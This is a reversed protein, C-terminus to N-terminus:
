LKGQGIAHLQNSCKVELMNISVHASLAPNLAPRVVSNVKVSAALSTASLWSRYPSAYFSSTDDGNFSAGFLFLSIVLSQLPLTLLCIWSVLSLILWDTVHLGVIRSLLRPVYKRKDRKKCGCMGRGVGAHLTSRMYGCKKEFPPPSPLPPSPLSSPVALCKYFLYCQKILADYYYCGSTKLGHNYFVAQSGVEACARM